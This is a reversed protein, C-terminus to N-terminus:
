AVASCKWVRPSGRDPVEIWRGSFVKKLSSSVVDGVSDCACSDNMEVGFICEGYVIVM